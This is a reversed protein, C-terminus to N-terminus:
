SEFLDKTLAAENLFRDNWADALQELGCERLAKEMDNIKDKPKANARIHCWYHLLGRILKTIEEKTAERFGANRPMNLVFQVVTTNPINLLMALQLCTLGDKIQDALINISEESLIPPPATGKVDTQSVLFYNLNYIIQLMSLFLLTKCEFTDLVNKKFM